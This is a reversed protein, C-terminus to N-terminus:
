EEKIQNIRISISIFDEDLLYNIFEMTEIYNGIHESTENSGICKRTIEAHYIRDIM